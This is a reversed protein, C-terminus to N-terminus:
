GGGGQPGGQGCGGERGAPGHAPCSSSTHQARQCSHTGPCTAATCWCAGQAARWASAQRRGGPAGAQAWSGSARGRVEEKEAAMISDFQKRPHLAPLAPPRQRPAGAAAPWRRAAASREGADVAPWGGGRSGVGRCGAWGGARAWRRPSPWCCRWRPSRGRGARTRWARWCRAWGSRWRWAAPLSPNCPGPPSARAAQLAVAM